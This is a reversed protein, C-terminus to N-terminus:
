IHSRYAHKETQRYRKDMGEFLTRGKETQVKIDAHTDRQIGVLEEYRREFEKEETKTIKRNTIIQDLQSNQLHQPQNKTRKM